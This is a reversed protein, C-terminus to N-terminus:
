RGVRDRTFDVPHVNARSRVSHADTEPSVTAGISDFDTGDDDSIEILDPSGGDKADFPIQARDRDSGSSSVVFPAVLRERAAMADRAARNSAVVRGLERVEEILRTEVSKTDHGNIQKKNRWESASFAQVFFREDNAERVVRYRIFRSGIVVQRWWRKRVRRDAANLSLCSTIFFVAAGFILAVSRTVAYGSAETLEVRFGLLSVGAVCAIMACLSLAGFRARWLDRRSTNAEDLATETYRQAHRMSISEENDAEGVVLLDHSTFEPGIFPRARAVSDIIHSKLADPRKFEHETYIPQWGNWLYQEFMPRTSTASPSMRFVPNSKPILRDVARRLGSADVRGYSFAMPGIVYHQLAWAASATVGTLAVLFLSDDALSPNLLLTPGTLMIVLMLSVVYTAVRRTRIPKM